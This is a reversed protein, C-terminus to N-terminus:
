DDVDTTFAVRNQALWRVAVITTAESRFEAWPASLGYEVVGAKYRRFAESQTAVLALQKRQTKSKITRAFSLMVGKEDLDFSAPLALWLHGELIARVLALHEAKWLPIDDDVEEDLSREDEATLTVMMGTRPNLYATTEDNLEEVADIVDGTFVPLPM